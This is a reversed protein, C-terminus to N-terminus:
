LRTHPPSGGLGRLGLPDPLTARLRRCIKVTKAYFVSMKVSKKVSYRCATLATM